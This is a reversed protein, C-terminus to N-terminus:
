LAPRRRHLRAALALFPISLAAYFVAALLIRGDGGEEKQLRRANNWVRLLHSLDHSGDGADDIVHPLLDAALANLPAFAAATQALTM